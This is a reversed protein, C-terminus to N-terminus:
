SAVIYRVDVEHPSGIGSRWYRYRRGGTDRQMQKRFGQTAGVPRSRTDAIWSLCVRLPRHCPCSCLFIDNGGQWVRPCVLHAGQECASSVAWAM